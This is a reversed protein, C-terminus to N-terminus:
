TDEILSRLRIIAQGHIQCIRSESVGLVEGIESMNLEREYYLSLVLQEREPLAEICSTVNAIFEDHSVQQEPTAAPFRPLERDAGPREMKEELSTLRCTSSDRLIAYYRDISIGLGDAVESATAARGEEAEIERMKEMVQRHKQFVSRPTWDLKRVEDLMAGRIRIGAYTDFNAGRTEDFNAAAELLGVMGAQMLDDLDISNPLRAALHLAIRKVLALKENVLDHQSDDARMSMESYANM